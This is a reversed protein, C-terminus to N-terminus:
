QSELQARRSEEKREEHASDANVFIDFEHVDLGECIDALEHAARIPDAYVEPGFFRATYIGRATALRDKRRDESAAEKTLHFNAGDVEVILIWEFSKSEIVLDASRKSSGDFVCQSYVYYEYEFPGASQGRVSFTMGIKCSFDGKPQAGYGLFTWSDFLAQVIKGEIPSECMSLAPIADVTFGRDM